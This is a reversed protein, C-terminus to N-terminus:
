PIEFESVGGAEKEVFKNSLKITYSSCMTSTSLMFRGINLMYDRLIKSGIYNPQNGAWQGIKQITVLILKTGFARLLNPCVTLNISPV